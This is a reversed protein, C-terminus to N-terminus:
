SLLPVDNEGKEIVFLQLLEHRPFQRMQLWQAILHRSIGWVVLLGLPAERIAVGFFLPFGVMLVLEGLGTRPAVCWILFALLSGCVAIVAGLRKLRKAGDASAM